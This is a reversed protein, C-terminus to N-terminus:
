KKDGKGAAKGAAPASEPWYYNAAFSYPPSMFRKAPVSVSAWARQSEWVKAFFPNKAAEEKAMEDWAKLFGILVDPPTRLVKVGHKEQLEKLAVANQRQWKVWWRTFTDHVASRVWEKQQPTFSNYVDGNILLEAIVNPEHMGPMYYYKWVNQFGLAMDEVPTVWEACDIV